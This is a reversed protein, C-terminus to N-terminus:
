IHILSLDFTFPVARHGGDHQFVATEFQPFDVENRGFFSGLCHPLRLSSLKFLYVFRCSTEFFVSGVEQPALHAAEQRTRPSNWRVFAGARWLPVRPRPARPTDATCFYFLGEHRNSKQGRNATGVTPVSNVANSRYTTLRIPISGGM